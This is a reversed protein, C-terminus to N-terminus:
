LRKNMLQRAATPTLEMEPALLSGEGTEVFGIKQYFEVADPIANLIIPGYHGNTNSEKALEAWLHQQLKGLRELRIEQLM